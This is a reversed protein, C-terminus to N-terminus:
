RLLTVTGKGTHVLRDPTRLRYTYAYTEQPMPRGKHTGDWPAYQDRTSYVLLGKRNYIYIEFELMQVATVCGFRNNVDLGPTFVNPFWFVLTDTNVPPQLLCRLHMVVLSDCGDTAVTDHPYIGGTTLFQGEFLLTDGQTITDFLHTVWAQRITLVVLSDCGFQDTLHFYHTGTALVTDPAYHSPQGCPVTDVIITTHTATVTLDLNILCGTTDVYSYHRAGPKDTSQPSLKFGHLYYGSGQCVTDAYNEICNYEPMENSIRVDDIYIWVNGNTDLYEPRFVIRWPLPFTDFYRGLDIDFSQRTGNEYSDAFVKITDLPVYSTICDEEDTVYGLALSAGDAFHQIHGNGGYGKVAHYSAIFQLRRPASAMQPTVAFNNSKKTYVHVDPSHYSARLRMQKQNTDSYSNYVVLSHWEWFHVWCVIWCHDDEQFTIDAFDGGWGNDHVFGSNFDEYYPLPEPTCNQQGHAAFALTLLLCAIIWRPYM